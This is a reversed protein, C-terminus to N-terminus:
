TRVAMGAHRAVRDVPESGTAGDGAVFECPLGRLVDLDDLLLDSSDRRALPGAQVQGLSFRGKFLTSSVDGAYSPREAGAVAPERVPKFRWCRQVNRRARGALPDCSFASRFLLSSVDGAHARGHGGVAGYVAGSGDSRACSVNCRRAVVRGPTIAHGWGWFCWDPPSNSRAAARRRSAHTGLQKSTFGQASKGHSTFEGCWTFTAQSSRGARSPGAVM